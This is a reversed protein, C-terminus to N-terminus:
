GKTWLVALRVSSSALLKIGNGNRIPHFFRFVQGFIVLIVVHTKQLKSTNNRESTKLDFTMFESLKLHLFPTFTPYHTHPHWVKTNTLSVSNPWSILDGPTAQGGQDRHLIEANSYDACVRLLLLSLVSVDRRGVGLPLLLCFPGSPPKHQPNSSLFVFVLKKKSVGSFFDPVTRNCEDVQLKRQPVHCILTHTNKLKHTHTHTKKWPNPHFAWLLPWIM